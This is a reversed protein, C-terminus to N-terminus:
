QESESNTGPSELSPIEKEPCEGRKSGHPHLRPHHMGDGGQKVRRALVM